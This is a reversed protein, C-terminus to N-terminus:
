FYSCATSCQAARFRACVSGVFTVHSAVSQPTNWPHSPDFLWPHLIDPLLAGVRALWASRLVETQPSFGEFGPVRKLIHVSSAPLYFNVERMREGTLEALEEYTAGQLFAKNVDTTCM